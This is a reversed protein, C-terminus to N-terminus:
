ARRGAAPSCRRTSRTCASTPASGPTSSPSRAAPEDNYAARLEPTDAVANCTARRRGLRPGPARDAVDLVARSRTTTPRCPTAPRRARARRRRRGAARRGGAGRPRASPPSPAAPAPSTSCRTPPNPTCRPRRNLPRRARRGRDHQRAADHRTMPGVGGPVPTIWGAVERVGRLRRRRLAQRRRRPEHRRRHRGRGAQGHRRTLMNRRGVAAVVIDAQRTHAALDPTASHCVTVTANAQLLLLAMPKGVINSRGIVVAHKGRPDCGTSELMKM